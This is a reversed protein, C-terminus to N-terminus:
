KKRTEGLFFPYSGDMTAGSRVGGPVGAGSGTAGVSSTHRVMLTASRSRKWISTLSAREATSGCRVM